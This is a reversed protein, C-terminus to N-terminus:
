ALWGSKAEGHELIPCGRRGAVREWVGDDAQVYYCKCGAMPVIQALKAGAVEELFARAARAGAYATSVSPELTRAYHVARIAIEFAQAPTTAFHAAARLSDLVAEHGDANLPPPVAGEDGSRGLRANAKDRVKAALVRPDNVRKPTM